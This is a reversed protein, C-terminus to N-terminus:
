SSPFCNCSGVFPCTFIRSSVINRELTARTNNTTQLKPQNTPQNPLLHHCEHDMETMLCVKRRGVTLVIRFMLFWGNRRLFDLSRRSSERFCRGNEELSLMSHLLRPQPTLPHRSIESFVCFALAAYIQKSVLQKSVHVPDSSAVFPRNSIYLVAQVAYRCCTLVAFSANHVKAM